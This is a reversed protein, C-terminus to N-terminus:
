LWYVPQRTTLDTGPDGLRLTVGLDERGAGLIAGEDTATGQGGHDPLGAREALYLIFQEYVGGCNEWETQLLLIGRHWHRRVQEQIDEVTANRLGAKEVILAVWLPLDDDGFLNDGHIVKGYDDADEDGLPPARDPLALSHAIALRAPEYRFRLGLKSQMLDNVEDARKSTRFNVKVLSRLNTVPGAM